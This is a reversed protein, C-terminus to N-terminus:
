EIVAIKGVMKEAGDASAAFILYVGTAARKGKRDRVNWSAMGGNARAEWLLRGTVDTIKVLADNALGSIGVTGTFAPTVPNPFIRISNEFTPGAVTADGQFSVIGRDTSFFVEGTANNIEIDLIHNSLLPSNETTFNYVLAEGTPGFLWVGQETGIWKRNGGDVHIATIKESRLLFQGEFIPSIADDKATLFYAVGTNTGVWTYGDRDVAMCNIQANPLGGSGAVDTKFYSKNEQPEFVILGGGTSPQLRVWVNGRVDVSLDVPNGANPYNFVFSDWTADSKLLHLSPTGGYNAVWLGSASPEIATLTSNLTNSNVLPSNSEDWINIIAEDSTAVLGSGFTSTFTNEILAIDTLDQVSRQVINWSGNEFINLDGKRGLPQGTPSFGGPVVFLKGDQFLMRFAESVSPGNPIYSSFTGGANSVLGSRRDAIWITGDKDQLAMSPASILDDGIEFLEDSANVAWLTSDAILLLNDASGTVSSIVRDQLFTKLTWQGNGYEYLGTQGTAYIHDQFTAISHIPGAFSGTKYRKWNGYDLLNDDLDGALIGHNTALYISDGTIASENIALVEGTPGLDRWTEKIELLTLDFLVVGYNTSFYAVDGQISIHNIKKEVTVAANKLSNFNTIVDRHLIDLDGDQYGILLQGTAGDYKLYSIGTNSLGNLKNYTIISQDTRNFILIGSEGAAYINEDGSTLTRIDYYSLHYRWTALPINTQGHAATSGMVFILLIIRLIAKTHVFTKLLRKM